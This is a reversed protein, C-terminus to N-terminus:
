PVTYIGAEELCDVSRSLGLRSADFVLVLERRLRKLSITTTKIFM